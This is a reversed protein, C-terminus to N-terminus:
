PRPVRRDWESPPIPVVGGSPAVRRQAISEAAALLRAPLVAKGIWGVDWGQLNWGGSALLTKGDQSFWLGTVAGGQQLPRGVPEAARTDWFRIMGDQGGTALTSGDPSVAAAWIESGHPLRIGIPRGTKADLLRAMGDRGAAVLTAGDPAFFLRSVSAEFKAGEGLTLGSSADWLEVRRAEEDCTALRKGDPSWAVKGRGGKLARSVTALSVDRIETENSAIAIRGEDPSFDADWVFGKPKIQALAHGSEVEWVRLGADLSYTLLRRGARDLRALTLAPSSRGQAAPPDAAHVLPGAVRKGTKADWVMAEAAGRVVTVLRAGDGSFAITEMGMPGKALGKAVPLGSPVELIAVGDDEGALLGRDFSLSENHAYLKMQWRGSPASPISWLRATGDRGATAVWQGDGSFAVALVPSGHSMEGGWPGWGSLSWLRAAGDAGATAVFRGDASIALANISAGHVLPEGVPRGAEAEGSRGAQWLRLTGDEGATLVRSGDRTFAAATIRGNHRMAQGIPKGTGRDLLAARSWTVTLISGGDPSFFAEDLPTVYMGHGAEYSVPPGLPRRSAADHLQLRAGVSTLLSRGDASFDFAPVVWRGEAVPHRFAPGAEQGSAADFVKVESGKAGGAVAITRGDPSFRAVAGRLRAIKRGTAADLLTPGGRGCAVARSGDASFEASARASGGLVLALMPLGAEAETELVRGTRADLIVPLVDKGGAVLRTGDHNVAVADVPAGLDWVVPPRELAGLYALASRRAAATPSLTNARAFLVAAAADDGKDAAMRARLAYANALEAQLAGYQRLVTASGLGLAVALLGGLAVAAANRGVFKRLRYPASAALPSVPRGERRAVLDAMVADVNAYRKEPWPELCRRVIAALDPDAPPAPPEAARIGDRYLELRKELGDADDLAPRLRAEHPARGALVAHLTAGLGFLDWRVDPCLRENQRLTLAQEPAMYYLTGLAGSSESTIRSQGFDAIRVRGEDDLLVNAPKIDCHLIGKGHVYCLASALEEAWRAAAEASAPKAPDVYRALSGGEMLEMVFYPPDGTLDADLLSVVHPHKDLKILREVERQLLLWDVGHRRPFVKVAVRKGTRRQWAKWVEGYAGAGLKEVLIYGDIAPASPDQRAGEQGSLRRSTEGQAQDQKLTEGSASPDDMALLTHAGSRGPALSPISRTGM